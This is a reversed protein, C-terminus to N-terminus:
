QDNEKRVAPKYGYPMLDAVREWAMYGETYIGSAPFYRGDSELRVRHVMLIFKSTQVPARSQNFRMSYASEETEHNYLVFLPKRYHFFSQGKENRLMMETASVEVGSIVEDYLQDERKLRNVLHVEFGEEELRDQYVAQLFHTLSGFYARDRNQSVRNIRRAPVELDEFYPYGFYSWREEKPNCEFSELVFSIQYGLNINEILIPEKAFVLLHGPKTQDDLILVEPNLIKSKRANMSTGLFYLEFIKLNKFWSKDRKAEVLKEQLDVVTPKIRLELQLPIHRKVEILQQFTRYGMFSVIIEYEGDPISGISFKGDKDTVTGLTTNSLFVTAFPLPAETDHDLAIGRVLGQAFIAPLSNFVVMLLILLRKM